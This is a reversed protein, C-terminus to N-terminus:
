IITLTAATALIAKATEMRKRAAELRDALKVMQGNPDRVYADANTPIWDVACAKVYFTADIGSILGETRPDIALQTYIEAYWGREITEQTFYRTGPKVGKGTRRQTSHDYDYQRWENAESRDFTELVLEHEGKRHAENDQSNPDYNYNAMTSNGATDKLWVKYILYKPVKRSQKLLQRIVQIAENTLTVPVLDNEKQIEIHEAAKVIPVDVTLYGSADANNPIDSYVQGSNAGISNALDSNNFDVRAKNQYFYGRQLSFIAGKAFLQVYTCKIYGDCKSGIKFADAYNM